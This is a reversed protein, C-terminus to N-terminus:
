GSRRFGEGWALPNGERGLFYKTLGELAINSTKQTMRVRSQQPTDEKRGLGPIITGSDESGPLGIGANIGLGATADGGYQSAFNFRRQRFGGRVNKVGPASAM